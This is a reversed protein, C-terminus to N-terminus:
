EEEIKSEKGKDDVCTVYYDYEFKSSIKESADEYHTEDKSLEAIKKYQTIPEGKLKRYLNYQVVNIKHDINYPNNEWTIYNIYKTYFFSREIKKEVKVNVASKISVIPYEYISYYVSAEDERTFWASLIGINPAFYTDFTYASPQDNCLDIPDDMNLFKGEKYKLMKIAFNTDKYIILLEDNGRRLVKSHYEFNPKRPAEAYVQNELNKNDFTIEWKKKSENYKREFPQYYYKRKQYWAFSILGEKNAVAVSPLMHWGPYEWTLENLWDVSYDDEPNFLALKVMIDDAENLKDQKYVIYLFGDEDFSAFENTASYKFKSINRTEGFKSDNHKKIKVFVNKATGNRNIWTLVIDDNVPNIVIMPSEVYGLAIKVPKSWKKTKPDFTAYYGGHVRLSWFAHFVGDSTPEIDTWWINAYDSKPYTQNPIKDPGIWTESGHPKYYYAVGNNSNRYIIMIDGDLNAAISPSENSGPLDPIKNVEKLGEEESLLFGIGVVLIFLFIAIKKLKM